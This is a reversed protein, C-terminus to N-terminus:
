REGGGREPGFQVISSADQRSDAVIYTFTDFCLRVQGGPPNVEHM